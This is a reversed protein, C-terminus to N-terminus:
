ACYLVITKDKAYNGAWSKVDGPEARIAGKIKFESSSWDRGARVDLIVTNESDLRSKLEDIDMTDVNVAVSSTASGILFIFLATILIRMRM